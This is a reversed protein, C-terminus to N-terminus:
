KGASDEGESALKRFYQEIMDRYHAPFDKGIQQLAEQRQRPPLDGWGRQNGIPKKAVEGPGKGEM